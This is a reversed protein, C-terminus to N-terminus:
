KIKRQKMGENEKNRVEKSYTCLSVNGYVVEVSVGSLVSEQKSRSSEHETINQQEM